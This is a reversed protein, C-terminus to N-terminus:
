WRGCILASARQLLMLVREGMGPTPYKTSSKRPPADGPVYVNLGVGSRLRSHHGIVRPALALQTVLDESANGACAVWELRTEGTFRTVATSSSFLSSTSGNQGASVDHGAVFLWGALRAREGRPALPGCAVARLRLSSPKGHLKSEGRGLYSRIGLGGISFLNM